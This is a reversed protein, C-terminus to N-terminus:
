TQLVRTENQSQGAGTFRRWIMPDQGCTRLEALNKAGRHAFGGRVLELDVPLWRNLPGKSLVWGEVGEPASKGQGYRDASRDAIAGLSAMGRYRNYQQGNFERRADTIDPSGAEDASALWEGAMVADAGAALAVVAPGPGGVGGDAIIAPARQGQKQCHRRAYSLEQLLSWMPVGVGTVQSTTCISGSGIGAKVADAGADALRLYGDISAINGAIVAAKGQCLKAIRITQQVVAECNGHSSDIVVIGVGLALGAIVRELDEDHVGVAMGVLPLTNHTAPSLNRVDDMFYMGHLCNTNDIVPLLRCDSESVLREQIVEFPTDLPVTKLQELPRMNHEVLTTERNAFSIDRGFIIGALKGDQTLVPVNRFYERKIIGEVESLPDGVTVSHPNLLIGPKTALAEKVWALQTEASRHRYIIACGGLAALAGAMKPGSVTDMAAGLLPIRLMAPGLRTELNVDGPVFDAYADNFRMEALTFGVPPSVPNAEPYLEKYLQAAIQDTSKHM